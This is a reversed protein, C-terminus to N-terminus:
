YYSRLGEQFFWDRGWNPILNLKLRVLRGLLNSSYNFGGIRGGGFRVV